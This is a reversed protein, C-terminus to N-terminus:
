KKMKKSTTKERVCRNKLNRIQGKKCKRTLKKKGFELNMLKKINKEGYHRGVINIMQPLYLKNQFKSKSKLVNKIYLLMVQGFNRNELLIEDSKLDFTTSFVDFKNSVLWDEDNEEINKFYSNISFLPNGYNENTSQIIKKFADNKFKKETEPMEFYYLDKLYKPQNFLTELANDINYHSKLLYVIRKYLDINYHRSNFLLKDKLYIEGKEIKSFSNIFIELKYLILFLYCKIIKGTKTEYNINANKLLTEASKEVFLFYDYEDNKYKRRIKVNNLLIEKMIDIGDEARCRFTMQPTFEIDSMLTDLKTMYYLNTEPKHFLVTKKVIPRFKTKTDDATILLSGNIRELNGMHDIIRSCADIFKNFIINENIQLKFYTIVFEVCSFSACIDSDYTFKLDFTKGKDSKFFFMQNKDITLKKCRQRILNTFSDDTLDNTIQFDFIKKDDSPRYENFYELYKEKNDNKEKKLVDKYYEWFEPDENEEFDEDKTEELINSIYNEDIKNSAGTNINNKLIRVSIDSNILSTKNSHLSLKIVNSEFEFGISIIKKFLENSVFNGGFFM